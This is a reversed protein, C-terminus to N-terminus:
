NYIEFGDIRPYFLQIRGSFGNEKKDMLINSCIYKLHDGVPVVAALTM